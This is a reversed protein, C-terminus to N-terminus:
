RSANPIVKLRKFLHELNELMGMVLEKHDDDMLGQVMFYSDWYYMENYDSGTKERYSPVLYPNPLGLLSEDDKPHFREIKSWYAAIYDRALRVDEPLLDQQTRFSPAFRKAVFSRAKELAM